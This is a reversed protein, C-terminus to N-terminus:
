LIGQSTYKMAPSNCIAAMIWMYDDSVLCWETNPRKTTNAISHAYCGQRSFNGPVTRSQLIKLKWSWVREQDRQECATHYSSAQFRIRSHFGMTPLTKTSHGESAEQASPLILEDQSIISAPHDRGRPCLQVIWAKNLLAWSTNQSCDCICMTGWVCLFSTQLQNFITKLLQGTSDRFNKYCRLPSYIQSLCRTPVRSVPLASRPRSFTPNQPETVQRDASLTSGKDPQDRACNCQTEKPESCAM